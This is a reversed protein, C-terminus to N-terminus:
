NWDCTTDCYISVARYPRRGHIRSWWPRHLDTLAAASWVGTADRRRSTPLTVLLRHDETSGFIARTLTRSAQWLTVLNDSRCAVAVRRQSCSSVSPPASAGRNAVRKRKGRLFFVDRLRLDRVLRVSTVETPTPGCKKATNSAVANRREDWVRTGWKWHISRLANMHEENEFIFAGWLMWTNRMKLFSHWEFCRETFITFVKLADILVGDLNPM